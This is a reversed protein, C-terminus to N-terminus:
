MQRGGATPREDREVIRELKDRTERALGRRAIDRLRDAQDGRGIEKHKLARLLKRALGPARPDNELDAHELHAEVVYLQDRLHFTKASTTAKSDNQSAGLLAEVALGLPTMRAQDTSDVRAGGQALTHVTDTNSALHLPTRGRGTRVETDLGYDLLVQICAARGAKALVHMFTEHNPTLPQNWYAKDGPWYRLCTELTRSNWTITTHDRRLDLSAMLAPGVDIGRSALGHVFAHNGNFLTHRAAGALLSRGPECARGHFDLTADAGQELALVFSGLDDALIAALLRAQVEPTTMSGM